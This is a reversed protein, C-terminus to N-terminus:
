PNYSDYKYCLPGKETDAVDRVTMNPFIGWSTLETDLTVPM